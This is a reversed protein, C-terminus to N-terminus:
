VTHCSCYHVSRNCQTAAAICLRGGRKVAWERGGEGRGVGWEGEWRGAVDSWDIEGGRGEAGRM